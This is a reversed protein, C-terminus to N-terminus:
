LNGLREEEELWGEAEDWEAKILVRRTLAKAPNMLFANNMLRSEVALGNALPAIGPERGINPHGAGVFVHGIEHALTTLWGKRDDANGSKLRNIGMWAFANQPNAMGGYLLVPQEVDYIGDYGGLVYVQINGVRRGASIEVQHPLTPPDAFYFREGVDVEAVSEPRITINFTVNIQPAFIDNLHEEMEAKTPLPPLNDPPNGPPQGPRKVPWVSVSVVRPKMIKARLPVSVSPVEGIKIPVAVETGAAAAPATLTVTSEKSHITEPASGITGDGIRLGTTANVPSRVKLTMEGGAPVMAWFEERATRRELPTATSDGFTVVSLNDLGLGPKETTLTIPAGLLGLIATGDDHVALTWGDPSSDIMRCKSFDDWVDPLGPGLERATRTKGNFWIQNARLIGFRRNESFDVMEKLAEITQWPLYNVYPLLDSGHEREFPGEIQNYGATAVPWEGPLFAVRNHGKDFTRGHTMFRGEEDRGWPTGDNAIWAPSEWNISLDSGSVQGGNTAAQPNLTWKRRPSSNHFRAYEAGLITVTEVSVSHALFVGEKNVNMDSPPPTTAGPLGPIPISVAQLYDEGSRLPVPNGGDAPWTVLCPEWSVGSDGPLDIEGVGLIAGNDGIGFPTCNKLLAGNVPNLPLETGNQWIAGQYLVTGRDNVHIPRHSGNAAADVPFWAFLLHDSKRWDILRDASAADFADPIGDGDSDREEGDPIDNGNTDGNWPSAPPSGPPEDGALAFELWDPTGDGDSDPARSILRFFRRDGPEQAPPDPQTRSRIVNAAVEADMTAFHEEFEDIMAQDATGLPPNEGAPEMLSGSHLICFMHDDFRNVYLPMSDWEPSMSLDASHYRLPQGSDISRFSAIVGGGDARQLLLTTSRIPAPPTGSPAESPPAAPSPAEMMPVVVEHNLGYYFGPQNEWERLDESTQVVYEIGLAAQFVASRYIVGGPLAVDEIRIDPMPPPTPTQAPLAAATFCAIVGHLLPRVIPSPSTKPQMM